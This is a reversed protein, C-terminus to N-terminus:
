PSGAARGASAREEILVFLFEVFDGFLGDRVAEPENLAEVALGVGLARLITALEDPPFGLRGGSEEERESLWRAVASKTAASRTGFKRSLAPDRAAHVALELNLLFTDRDDTSLRTWQDALARARKPFPADADLRAAEMGRVREAMYDEFVGLFLDAKSEFNSYVAGHSYGAAEAIEEVSAGRYGRRAFVRAAADLLDRRTQARKEERSQRAM